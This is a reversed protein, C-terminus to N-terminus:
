SQIPRIGKNNKQVTIVIIVIVGISFLHGSESNIKFSAVACIVGTINISFFHASNLMM